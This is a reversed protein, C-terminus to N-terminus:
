RVGTLFQSVVSTFVDPQDINPLHGANRIEVFQAHEITEAMGAMLEPLVGDNEGVLLLTPCTIENLRAAFDMKQIAQAAMVFGAVPTSKLADSVTSIDLGRTEPADGFWRTLMFDGVAVM